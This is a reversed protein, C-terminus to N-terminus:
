NGAPAEGHPPKADWREWVVSGTRVEEGTREYHRVFKPIWVGGELRPEYATYHVREVGSGVGFRSFSRHERLSFLVNGGPKDYQLQRPHNVWMTDPARLYDPM